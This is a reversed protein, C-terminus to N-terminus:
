FERARVRDQADVAQASKAREQGPYEAAMSFRTQRRAIEWRVHQHLLPLRTKWGLAQLIKETVVQCAIGRPGADPAVTLGNLHEWDWDAWRDAHSPAWAQAPVALAPGADPHVEDWAGWKTAGRQWRDLQESHVAALEGATHGAVVVSSAAHGKLWSPAEV